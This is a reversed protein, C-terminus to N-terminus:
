ALNGSFGAGDNSFLRILSLSTHLVKLNILACGNTM